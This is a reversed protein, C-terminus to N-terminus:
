LLRTYAVDGEECRHVMTLRRSLNRRIDFQEMAASDTLSLEVRIGM